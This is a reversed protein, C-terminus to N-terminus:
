RWWKAGAACLPSRSLRLEQQASLAQHLFVLLARWVIPLLLTQKSSLRERCPRLDKVPHLPLIQSLPTATTLHHTSSWSFPQLLSGEDKSPPANELALLADEHSVQQSRPKDRRAVPKAIL